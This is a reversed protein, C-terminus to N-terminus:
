FEVQNILALNFTFLTLPVATTALFLSFSLFAYNKFDVPFPNESFENAYPSHFFFESSKPRIPFWNEIVFNIFKHSLNRPHSHFSTTWIFLWSFQFCLIIKVTKWTEDSIFAYWSRTFRLVLVSKMDHKSVSLM